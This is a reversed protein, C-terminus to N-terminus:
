PSLNVEADPLDSVLFEAFRQDGTVHVKLFATTYRNILEHGRAESLADTCGLCQDNFSLHHGEPLVVYHVPTAAALAEYLRDVGAKEVIEDKSGAILLVPTRVSSAAPVLTDPLGPAMAVSADFAGGPAVYLSTWGGFSHGAIATREPDILRGLPEAGAESLRVLEELMFAVDGPREQASAAINQFDCAVCDRVTNGPHPPAVVVFGWSALHETLFSHNEPLGGSGHSFIVLPFPGSDVPPAGESATGTPGEAPYWAWTQLERPTADATSERTLTLREIGVTFPGVTAPDRFLDSDPGTSGCSGIFVSAFTITLVLGTFPAQRSVVSIM